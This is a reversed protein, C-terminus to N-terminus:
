RGSRVVQGRFRGVAVPAPVGIAVAPGSGVAPGIGVGPGITVVPGSTSAAGSASASQDSAPPQTAPHAFVARARTRAQELVGLLTQLEGLVSNPLRGVAAVAAQQVLQPLRSRQQCTLDAVAAALEQRHV